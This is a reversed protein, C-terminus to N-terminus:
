TSPDSLEDTPMNDEVMEVIKNFKETSCRFRGWCWSSVTNQSVRLWKSVCSAGGLRDVMARIVSALEVNVYSADSPGGAGAEVLAEDWGFGSPVLAGIHASRGGRIRWIARLRGHAQELEATAQLEVREEASQLDSTGIMDVEDSVYSVDLRPDGLTVLADCDKMRDLGRLAGYHGWQIDSAKLQALIPGLHERAKAAQEPTLADQASTDEVGMAAQMAQQVAAFTVIAVSQGPCRNLYDVMVKAWRKLSSSYSVGRKLLWQTRTASRTQILTREIPAGDPVFCEELAPRYGLIAEYLPLNMRANADLVAVSGERRVGVELSRNPYILRLTEADSMRAISKRAAFFRYVTDLLGSVKGLERHLDTAKTARSLQAMVWRKIPPSTGSKSQPPFVQSVDIRPPQLANFGHAFDQAGMWQYLADVAPGIRELYAPEFRDAYLRLREFDAAVFERSSVLSEPEDIILLESANMDNLVSAMKAHAAIRIPGDEVGEYGQRAVCVDFRDCKRQGQGQCFTWELSQGGSVLPLAAKRYACANLGVVSLPSYLRRGYHTVKSLAQKAMEHTPEFLVSKRQLRSDDDREYREVMVQIAATTKGFGCPMAFLTVGDILKRMANLMKEWSVNRDEATSKKAERMAEYVRAEAGQATIERVVRLLRPDQDELGRIPDGNAWRQLTSQANRIRPRDDLGTARSVAEVFSPIIETPMGRSCLEGPLHLFVTHWVSQSEYKVIADAVRRVQEQYREPVDQWDLRAPEKRGRRRIRSARDTPESAIPVVEIPRM